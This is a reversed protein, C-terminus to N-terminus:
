HEKARGSTQPDARGLFPPEKLPGRDAQKIFFILSPHAKLLPKTTYENVDRLEYKLFEEIIIRNNEAVLDGIEADSLQKAIALVCAVDCYNRIYIHGDRLM